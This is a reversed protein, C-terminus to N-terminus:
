EAINVLAAELLKSDSSIDTKQKPAVLAVPM